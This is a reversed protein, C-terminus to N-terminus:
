LYGERKLSNIIRQHINLVGGEGDVEVLVRNKRLFNVAPLTQSKFTQIREKVVEGRDEEPRGRKKARRFIEEDSVNLFIFAYDTPLFLKKLTALEMKAETILRPSGSIVINKKHAYEKLKQSVVYGVLYTSYLGGKLRREREKRLNFVNKGLKIYGKPYKKFFLSMMTSTTLKLGRIKKALLKAQTDKGSAPPGILFFAKTRKVKM